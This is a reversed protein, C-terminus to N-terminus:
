APAPAHFLHHTRRGTHDPALVRLGTLGAKCDSGAGWWDGADDPPPKRSDFRSEDHSIHLDLVYHGEGVDLYELTTCAHGTGRAVIQGHRSLSWSMGLDPLCYADYPSAPSEDEHHFNPVATFDIRYRSRANIEFEPTHIHGPSLSIPIDFPRWIRTSAWRYWLGYSGIGALILASGVLTARLAM